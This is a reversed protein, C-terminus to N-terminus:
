PKPVQDMSIYHSVALGTIVDYWARMSPDGIYKELCPMYSAASVAADRSTAVLADCCGGGNGVYGLGGM